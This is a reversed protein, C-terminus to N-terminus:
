YWRFSIEKPEDQEEPEFYEEEEFFSFECCPCVHIVTKFMVACYERYAEEYM